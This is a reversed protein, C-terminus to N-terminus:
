VWPARKVLTVENGKENYSLKDVYARMLTIGRGHAVELNEDKTPDPVANPDFGAGEDAVKITVKRSDLVYRVRIQNAYVEIRSYRNVTFNGLPHAEAPQPQVALLGAFVLSVVFLKKLM